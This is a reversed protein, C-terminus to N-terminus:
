PSGGGVLCQLSHAAAASGSLEQVLEGMTGLRNTAHNHFAEAAPGTWQTQEVIGALRNKVATVQDVLTALATPLDGCPNDVADDHGGHGSQGLSM